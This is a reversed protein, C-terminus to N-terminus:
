APHVRYGAAQGYVKEVELQLGFATDGLDANGRPSRVFYVAETGEMWVPMGSNRLKSAVESVTCPGTFMKFIAM